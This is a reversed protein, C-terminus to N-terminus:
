GRRSVQAEILRSTIRGLQVIEEWDLHSFFRDELSAFHTNQVELLRQLGKDTIHVVVGRSDDPAAEKAVLGKAELEAVLRSVRSQSLPAQEGLASMRLSGDASFAALHLLVEFTRLSLGHATQLDADLGRALTEGAKVLGLFAAARLPPPHRVGNPLEVLKSEEPPLERAAARARRSM